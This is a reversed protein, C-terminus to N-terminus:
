FPLDENSGAPEVPPMTMQPPPPVAGTGYDPQTGGQPAGELAECRWGNISTFWRGQYEHSDIDFSLKISDGVNLPYQDARDGFMTFAIKRPFSGDEPLTELVYEKKKWPKGSAKAVGSQEGIYQIIKGKVEM